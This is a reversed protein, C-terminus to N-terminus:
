VFFRELEDLRAKAALFGTCWRTDGFRLHAISRRVDLYLEQQATIQDCGLNLFYDGGAVAARWVFRALLTEGARGNLLPRGQLFLNTGYVYLCDKSTIAFGISVDEVDDFFHLKLYIALTSDYDIVAPELQGNSVLAYDLIQVRGDGLRTEDKNYSLRQPCRDQTGDRVLLAMGEDSLFDSDSDTQTRNKDSGKGSVDTVYAAAAFHSIRDGGPPGFLLAQYKNAAQAITGHFYVSGGELVVGANCLRQLTGV